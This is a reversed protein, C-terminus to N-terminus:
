SRGGVLLALAARLEDVYEGTAGAYVHLEGQATRLTWAVSAARVGGGGELAEPEPEVVRVPVMTVAPGVAASPEASRSRLAWSWWRLTGESLGHAAAFERATLGSRRWSAVVRRWEARTRRKATM